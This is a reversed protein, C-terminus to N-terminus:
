TRQDVRLVILLIINEALPLAFSPRHKASAAAAGRASVKRLLAKFQGPDSRSEAGGPGRLSSMSANPCIWDRLKYERSISGIERVTDARRAIGASAM